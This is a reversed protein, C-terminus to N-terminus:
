SLGQADGGETEGSAVAPQPLEVVVEIEQKPTREEVTKRIDAAEKNKRWAKIGLGLGITGLCTYIGVAVPSLLAEKSVNINLAM